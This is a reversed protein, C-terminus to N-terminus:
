SANSCIVIMACGRFCIVVGKSNDSSAVCCWGSPPDGALWLHRTCRTRSLYEVNIGAFRLPQSNYRAFVMFGTSPENPLEPGLGCNVSRCFVSLPVRTIGRNVCQRKGISSFRSGAVQWLAPPDYTRPIRTAPVHM